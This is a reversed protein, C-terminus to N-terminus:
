GKYSKLFQSSEIHATSEKLYIEIREAISVEKLERLISLFNKWTPQRSYDGCATWKNIYKPIMSNKSYFPDISESLHFGALRQLDSLSEVSKELVPLLSISAGVQLKNIASLTLYSDPDYAAVLSQM